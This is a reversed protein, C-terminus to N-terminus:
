GRPRSSEHRLEDIEAGIRNVDELAERVAHHLAEMQAALQAGYEIIATADNM